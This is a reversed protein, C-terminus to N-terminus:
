IHLYHHIIILCRYHTESITHLLAVGQLAAVYCDGVIFMRVLAIDDERRKDYGDQEGFSGLAHKIVKYTIRM